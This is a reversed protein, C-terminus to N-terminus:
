EDGSIRVCQRHVARRVKGTSFPKAVPLYAIHTRLRTIKM